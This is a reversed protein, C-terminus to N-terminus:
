VCLLPLILVIHITKYLNKYLPLICFSVTVDWM